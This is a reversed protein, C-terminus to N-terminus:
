REDHGVAAGESVKHASRAKHTDAATSKAAPRRFREAVDRFAKLLDEEDVEVDLLGAEIAARVFRESARLQMKKKKEKLKEIRADIGAMSATLNPDGM